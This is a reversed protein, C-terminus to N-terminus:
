THMQNVKLKLAIKHKHRESKEKQNLMLIKSMKDKFQILYIHLYVWFRNKGIETRM